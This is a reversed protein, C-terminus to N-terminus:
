RESGHICSKTYVKCKMLVTVGLKNSKGDIVISATTTHAAVLREGVPYAQILVNASYSSSYYPGLDSLIGPPRGLLEKLGPHFEDGTLLGYITTTDIVLICGIVRTMVVYVESLMIEHGHILDVCAVHRQIIEKTVVTAIRVDAVLITLM